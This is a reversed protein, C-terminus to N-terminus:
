VDIIFIICTKERLIEREGGTGETYGSKKRGTRERKDRIKIRNKGTGDSKGCFSQIIYVLIQKKQM